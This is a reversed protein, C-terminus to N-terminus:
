HFPIVLEIVCFISICEQPPKRHMFQSCCLVLFRIVRSENLEREIAYITHSEKNQIHQKTKLSQKPFIQTSVEKCSVNKVVRKRGIDTKGDIM